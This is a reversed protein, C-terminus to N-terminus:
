ELSMRSVENQISHFKKLFDLAIHEKNQDSVTCVVLSKQTETVTIKFGDDGDDDPLGLTQKNWVSFSQIIHNLFIEGQQQGDSILDLSNMDVKVLLNDSKTFTSPSLALRESLKVPMFLNDFTSAARKLITNCFAPGFSVMTKLVKVNNELGSISLVKRNLKNNINLPMKFRSKSESEEHGIHYSSSLDIHSSNSPFYKRDIAMTICSLIVYRASVGLHCGIQQFFSKTVSKSCLYTKKHKNNKATKQPKFDFKEATFTIVIRLLLWGALGTHKCLNTFSSNEQDFVSNIKDNIDNTGSFLARIIANDDLLPDIKFFIASQDNDMYRINILWPSLTKGKTDEFRTQQIRNLLTPIDQLTCSEESLLQIHNSIRFCKEDIWYTNLWSNTLARTVNPFSLDGNVNHSDIVNQIFREQLKDLSIRGNVVILIVRNQREPRNPIIPSANYLLSFCFRELSKLAYLVALLPSLPVLLGVLIVVLFQYGVVIRGLTLVANRAKTIFYCSSFATM